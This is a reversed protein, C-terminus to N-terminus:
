QQKKDAESGHAGDAPAAAAGLHRWGVGSRNEFPGATM